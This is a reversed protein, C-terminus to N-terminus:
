PLRFIIRPRGRPAATLKTGSGRGDGEVGGLSGGGHGIGRQEEIEGVADGADRDVPRVLEVREVGRDDGLQVLGDVPDLAVRSM